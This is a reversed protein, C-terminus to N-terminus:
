TACTSSCYLAAGAGTHWHLIHLIHTLFLDIHCFTCYTLGTHHCLDPCSKVVPPTWHPLMMIISLHIVSSPSSWCGSKIDKWDNGSIPSVFFLSPNLEHCDDGLFTLNLLGSVLALNSKRQLIGAILILSFLLKPKDRPWWWWWWHGRGLVHCQGIMM